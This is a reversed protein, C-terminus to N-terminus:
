CKKTNEKLIKAWEYTMFVNELNEELLKITNGAVCTIRWLQNKHIIHLLLLLTLTCKGMPVQNMKFHTFVLDTMQEHLFLM